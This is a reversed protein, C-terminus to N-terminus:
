RNLLISPCCRVKQIISISKKAKKSDQGSITANRTFDSPIIGEDVAERVCARIHANIKKVTEKSKTKGYVNLFSQYDSKKIHQIPTNSFHRRIVKLTNKYHVKTPPATNSKYISVWQEFYEDIPVLKIVPNLGKNIKSEIEAAAVQAEKKTKFGGKRIPKSEGQVIRSITYQWTKGRKTFSAM